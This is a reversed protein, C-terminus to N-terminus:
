LPQKTARAQAVTESAPTGFMRKYDTSFHGMHWFGFDAAVDFIRTEGRTEMLRRHAANLRLIKLYTIPGIGFTDKFSYILSRMRCNTSACIRRLTLPEGVNDWMYREVRQVLMVPRRDGRLEAGGEGSALADRCMRVIESEMRARGNESQLVTPDAVCEQLANAVYSRLESSGDNKESALVNRGRMVRQLSERDYQPLRAIDIEIWVTESADLSSVDIDSGCATLAHGASWERGHELARECRDIFALLLTEEDVHRRLRIGRNLSCLRIAVANARMEIFNGRFAGPTLQICEASPGFLRELDAADSFLVSRVRGSTEM